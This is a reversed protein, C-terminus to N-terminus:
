VLLQFLRIVDTQHASSIDTSYINTTEINLSQTLLQVLRIEIKCPLM